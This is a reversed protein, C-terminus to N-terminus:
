DTGLLGRFLGGALEFGELERKLCEAVGLSVWPAAAQVLGGAHGVGRTSEPQHRSPALSTGGGGGSCAQALLLRPPKDVYLSMQPQSHENKLLCWSRWCRQNAGPSELPSLFSPLAQSRRVGQDPLPPCLVQHCTHSKSPAVPLAGSGRAWGVGERGVPATQDESGSPELLFVAGREM